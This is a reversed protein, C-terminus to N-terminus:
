TTTSAPTKRARRGPARPARQGRSRRILLAIPILALWALRRWPNSQTEDDVRFGHEDAVLKKGKDLQYSIGTGNETATVIGASSAATWRPGEATLAMRGSLTSAQFKDTMVVATARHAIGKGARASLGGKILRLIAEDDWRAFHFYKANVVSNPGIEATMLPGLTLKVSTGPGTKIMADSGAKLSAGKKIRSTKGGSTYRASGSNAPKVSTVVALSGADTDDQAGAWSLDVAALIFSAFLLLFILRRM